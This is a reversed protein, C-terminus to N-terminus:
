ASVPAEVQCFVPIGAVVLTLGLFMACHAVVQWPATPMVQLSRVRAAWWFATPLGGQWRRADPILSLRRSSARCPWVTRFVLM